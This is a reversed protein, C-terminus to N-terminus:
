QVSDIKRIMQDIKVQAAEATNERLLFLEEAINLATLVAIKKFTAKPLREGIEKMRSDVYGAISAIREKPQDSSLTFEEDLITTHLVNRNDM